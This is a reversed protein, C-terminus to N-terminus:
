TGQVAADPPIDLMRLTGEMIKEFVPGSVPGGYYNKGRPDNIVVAVVLRPNTLPAIGVFSSVYRHKQYGHEGVKIATGTKGAVRYGPVNALEGTGGKTVVSELLMLMQEAIKADLVREGQPPKDLRLLSVPLIVGKNALVAYARALQMPTVSIGYGFALTALTFAGWPEHKILSGNQEGPFGLGTSTGFGVRHLLSWLQDPPLSLIMKTVGVNSSKQLIQMVTMPGNGHEDRVLNHGVRLWGPSTNILSNPKFHGSDLASAVSFAKITSGPEFTDTVARNRFADSQHGSRNNPNYSPQNVMALIEGTITDLVIASGSVAQNEIVGALLERYALYQIRRDISLTLDKGSKQERLTQANSIIRGLRDKIVWRKGIEGQLLANYALELGEQGIDDVNTFGLVHASVEGEPYYRRYEIQTYLGPLKLAKITSAIEPSLGRKLYIFERKSKQYQKLMSSLKKPKIGLAGGLLNLDKNAPFLFELPNIWVSYVKTSVALPFGHRDIIMGRSAPTSILRLMREDGQHRLFPQDLITLDYVRFVLGAVALSLMGLIVYYRWAIFTIQSM